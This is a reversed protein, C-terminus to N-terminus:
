FLATILQEKSLKDKLNKFQCCFCKPCHEENGDCIIKNEIHSRYEEGLYAIMEDKKEKNACQRSIINNRFEFIEKERQAQAIKDDLSGDGLITAIEQLRLIKNNIEEM